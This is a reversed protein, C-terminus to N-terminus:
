GHFTEQSRAQRVGMGVTAAIVQFLPWLYLSTINGIPKIFLCLLAASVYWFNLTKM